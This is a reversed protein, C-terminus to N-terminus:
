SCRSSTFEDSDAASGPQLHPIMPQTAKAVMPSLVNASVMTRWSAPTWGEDAM